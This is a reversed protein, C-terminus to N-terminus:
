KAEYEKDVYAMVLNDVCVTTGVSTAAELYFYIRNNFTNASDTLTQTYNTQNAAAHAKAETVVAAKDATVDAGEVNYVACSGTANVIALYSAEGETIIYAFGTENEAKMAKVINGSATAEALKGYLGEPTSGTALGIVSDPKKCIQEVFIEAARASMEEYNKVVLIKM